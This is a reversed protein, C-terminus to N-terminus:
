NMKNKVNRRNEKSNKPPTYRNIHTRPDKEWSFLVKVYDFSIKWFYSQFVFVVLIAPTSSFIKIPNSPNQGINYLAKKDIIKSILLFSNLENNELRKTSKREVEEPPKQQIAICIKIQDVNGEIPCHLFNNSINKFMNSNNEILKIEIIDIQCCNRMRLFISQFNNQMQNRFQVNLKNKIKTLM